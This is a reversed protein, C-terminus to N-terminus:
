SRYDANIDVYEHTLDCGWATANAQGGHMDAIITVAKASLIKTATKESYGSDMGDKVLQLPKAVLKGEIDDRGEITIDVKEPNFVAGSYGLACLIRGWNADKGYVAAKTLNSTIVSKSLTVADKKSKANLVKCEILKTAGEGDAAMHKALYTLVFLLAEYFEKYDDSGAVIKKNGAKGNALAFLSDNTSTDRDVSIMNFSVSVADSVAKQLAKQDIDADTTVVGLMTAMNPHIMGSGKSMGGITIKKGAIKTEVACQKEVTDTTMIAKAARTGADKSADLNETMKKIGAVAKEVPLRRGIVGTSATFVETAKLGLCEAVAKAMALDDKDGDKGTCANAIGSNIVVAQVNGGKKVIKIDRKVPAAKVVNTTFTGACVTPYASYVLAMDTRNAYKIGAATDAALFGNPATVGGNIQKMGKRREPAIWFM